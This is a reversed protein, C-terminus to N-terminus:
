DSRLGLVKCVMYRFAGMWGHQEVLDLLRKKITRTKHWYYMHMTYRPRHVEMHKLTKRQGQAAGAAIFVRQYSPYQNLMAIIAPIHHRGHIIKVERRLLGLGTHCHYDQTITAVRLRSYFLAKKFGPQDGMIAREERHQRYIKHWEQTFEDWAPSQRFLIVGSNYCQFSDPLDLQEFDPRSQTHAAAVDFQDLLRFLDTFDACAYTDTDLYLTREFPSMMIGPIKDGCHYEPNELVMVHDFLDSEIPMDAVLAIPLQPVVARISM